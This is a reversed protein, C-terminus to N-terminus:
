RPVFCHETGVFVTCGAVFSFSKSGTGLSLTDHRGGAIRPQFQMGNTKVEHVHLHPVFDDLLYQDM